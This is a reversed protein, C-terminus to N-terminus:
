HNRFGEHVATSPSRTRATSPPCLPRPALHVIRLFCSPEMNESVPTCHAPPSVFFARWSKYLGTLRWASVSVDTSIM